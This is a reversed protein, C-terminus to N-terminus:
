LEAKGNVLAEFFDRGEKIFGLIRQDVSKDICLDYYFVKNSNQGPRYIRREAQERVIPSVPSEYFCMYNAVQLNLGSSGSQNNVLFIRCDKNTMFIRIQEGPNKTGGYLRAHKVKIKKLADSILKGTHIFDYFVVMKSALPMEEILLLLEELKPNHPLDVILKDEKIFGSCVQRTKIFMNRVETIDGKNEKMLKIFSNYYDYNVQPMPITRQVYIKDPMDMCDEIAYRISNNQMMRLLDNELKKNFDYKFGGWYNKKKIFFVERFFTLTPGLSDGRDIAYFQAWLDQPDRGFPTGTLAYRFKANRSLRDLVRFTLSNRNKIKQSEDFVIFDFLESLKDLKVKDPAYASKGDKGQSKKCVMTLFGRYNAVFIDGEGTVKEWKENSTGDVAVFSLHPAHTATELAWGEVNAVNPVFVLCRRASGAKKHHSFVALVILTKGTGMDTLFLFKSRYAGIAVCTKQHNYLPTVLGPKPNINEYAKHISKPSQGKLWEYSALSRKLFNDLASKKIPM